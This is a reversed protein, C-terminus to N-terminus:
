RGINEHQRRRIDLILKTFSDEPIDHIHRAEIHRLIQEIDGRRIPEECRPCPIWDEIM